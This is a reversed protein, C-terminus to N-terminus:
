RMRAPSARNKTSIMRILGRTSHPRLWAWIRLMAMTAKPKPRISYRCRRRSAEQHGLRAIWADGAKLLGRVKASMQGMQARFHRAVVLDFGSWKGAPGAAWLLSWRMPLRKAM